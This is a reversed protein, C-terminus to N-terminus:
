ILLNMNQIALEAQFVNKEIEFIADIDIPKAYRIEEYNSPKMKETNTM